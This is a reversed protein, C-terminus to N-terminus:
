RIAEHCSSMARQPLLSDLRCNTESNLIFAPAVLNAMQRHEHRM